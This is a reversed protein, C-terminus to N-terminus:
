PGDQSDHENLHKTYKPHEGSVILSRKTMFLLGFRALYFLSLESYISLFIGCFRLFFVYDTGQFTGSSGAPLSELSKGGVNGKQEERFM